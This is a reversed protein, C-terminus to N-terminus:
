APTGTPIPVSRLVDAPTPQRDRWGAPVRPHRPHPPRHGAGGPAKVDDPTAKLGARRHRGPWAARQLSLTARPSMGLAIAPHRRTAVALDVLYEALAPAVHVGKVATAM